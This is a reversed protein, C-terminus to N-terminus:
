RAGGAQLTATSLLTAEGQRLHLRVVDRVGARSPDAATLRVVTARQQGPALDGLEIWAQGPHDQTVPGTVLDFSPLELLLHADELVIAERAAAVEDAFLPELDPLGQALLVRGGSSAALDGLAGPAGGLAVATIPRRVRAALAALAAPHTEGRSPEGGDGVLVIRDAAGAARIAELAAEVNTGGRGILRGVVTRLQERAAADLRGDFRVAAEDDYTVLVLRDGDRLRGIADLTTRQLLGISAAMSASTDVALVVAVQPEREPTAAPDVTVTVRLEDGDLTAELTVPPAVVKDFARAPTAPPSAVPVAARAPREFALGAVPLLGTATGVFGLTLVAAAARVRGTAIPPKNM